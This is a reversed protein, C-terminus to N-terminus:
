NFPRPAQTLGPRAAPGRRATAQPGDALARGPDYAAFFPRGVLEPDRAQVYHLVFARRGGIEAVGDVQVKGPTPSMMPGRVTRALGSVQTYAERFLEHARALPVAFYDQPGTDREVFL